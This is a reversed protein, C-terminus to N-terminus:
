RRFIFEKSNILAWALDEAARRRDPAAMDERRFTVEEGWAPAAAAILLAPVFPVLIRFM